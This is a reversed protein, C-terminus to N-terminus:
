SSGESNVVKMFALPGNWTGAVVSGSETNVVLGSMNDNFHALTVETGDGQKHLIKGAAERFNFTDLPSLTTKTEQIHIERDNEADFTISSDTLGTM